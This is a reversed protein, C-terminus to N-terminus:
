AALAGTISAAVGLAAAPLPVRLSCGVGFIFFIAFSVIATTKAAM